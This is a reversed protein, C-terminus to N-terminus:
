DVVVLVICPGYVVVREDLYPAVDIAEVGARLRLEEVLDCTAITSLDM